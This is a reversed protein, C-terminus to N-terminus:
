QEKGKTRAVGSRKSSMNSWEKQEVHQEGRRAQGTARNKKNLKNNREEPKVKKSLYRKAM